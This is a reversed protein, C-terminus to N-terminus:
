DTYRTHQVDITVQGTGSDPKIVNITVHDTTRNGGVAKPSPEEKVAAFSRYFFKRGESENQGKDEPLLKYGNNICQAKYAEAIADLDGTLDLNASWGTYTANGVTNPKTDEIKYLTTGNVVTFGDKFAQGSTAAAATATPAATTTTEGAATTTTSEATTATTQSL